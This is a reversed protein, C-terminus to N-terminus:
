DGSFECLNEIKSFAVWVKIFESYLDKVDQLQFVTLACDIILVFYLQICFIKKDIDVGVNYGDDEMM